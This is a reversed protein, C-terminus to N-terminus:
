ILRDKLMGYFNDQSLLIIGKEQAEKRQKKNNVGWTALFCTIGLPKVKLLHALIDEVFLIDKPKTKFKDALKILKEAKDIGADKDWIVDPGLKIGFRKFLMIITRKDKNTIFCIKNKKILKKVGDIIKEFPLTLKNWSSMDKQLAYREEYFAKSFEKKKEEPISEKFEDFEKQNKIKVNEDIAMFIGVFEDACGAYVKLEKFKKAEDPFKNPMEKFNNLEIRKGGFLETYKYFKVYTNFSTVLADNISNVIVGDFDLALIKM